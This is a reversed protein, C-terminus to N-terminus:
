AEAENKERSKKLTWLILEKRQINSEWIKRKFEPYTNRVELISM